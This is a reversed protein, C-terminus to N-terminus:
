VVLGCSSTCTEARCSQICVAYIACLLISNGGNWSYIYVYIYAHTTEKSLKPCTHTHRFRAYMCLYMCVYMCVYVCEWSANLCIDHLSFCVYVYVYMGYIYVCTCGDMCLFCMCVYMCVYVCLCTTFGAGGWRKSRVCFLFIVISACYYLLLVM